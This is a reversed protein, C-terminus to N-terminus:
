RYKKEGAPIEFNVHNSLPVLTCNYRDSYACSMNYALNFDFSIKNEGLDNVQLYKGAGYSENNCTADRYPLFFYSRDLANQFIALTCRNDDIDFSIHGYVYYNKIDGKTTQVEILEEGENVQIITEIRYDPNVPFYELKTFRTKEEANLPSNENSTMWNDVKIRYDEIKKIYEIKEDM